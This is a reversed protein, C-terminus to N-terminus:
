QLLNVRRESVGITAIAGSCFTLFDAEIGDSFIVGNEPMESWLQMTEGEGLTGLVIAAQSAVSVFPERVAFRLERATPPFAYNLRIREALEPQGEAEIMAAAAQHISRRWGTSGAGTSVIIGSSSHRERTENVQIQYRSSQHGRMGIFLDNVALLRQGDQLTAEAMTLSEAGFTEGGLLPFLAHVMHRALIGDITTPDPNIALIPESNLYKATNVVLGDPGVTVILSNTGFQYTPLFSMEVEALRMRRQIIERATDLTRRYLEDFRIYTNFDAGAKEIVFRAQGVTGYRRLLLELPTAKSVLVVRDFSM